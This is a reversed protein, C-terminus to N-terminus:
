AVSISFSITFRAESRMAPTRSIHQAGFVRPSVFSSSPPRPSLPPSRSRRVNLKKQLVRHNSASSLPAHLALNPQHLVVFGGPLARPTNRVDRRDRRVFFSFVGAHAPHRPQRPAPFHSSLQRDLNATAIRKRGSITTESYHPQSSLSSIAENNNLFYRTDPDLRRSESSSLARGRGRAM